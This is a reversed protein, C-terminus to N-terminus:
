HPQAPIHKAMFAASSPCLDTFEPTGRIPAPAAGRDQRSYGRKGFFPEATTTLLFLDVVGQQVAVEEAAGVLAGGLGSGRLDSRVALSRLLGVTGFLELGVVAALGHDDRSGLFRINRQEIDGTPLGSAELLVRIEAAHEQGLTSIIM